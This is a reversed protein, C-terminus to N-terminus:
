AKMGAQMIFLWTQSMPDVFISWKGTAVRRQYKINHISKSGIFVKQIEYSPKNTHVILAELSNSIKMLLLIQQSIYQMLWKRRKEKKSSMIKLSKQVLIQQLEIFVIHCWTELVKLFVQRLLKLREQKVNKQASKMDRWIQEKALM